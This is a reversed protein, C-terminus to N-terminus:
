QYQSYINSQTAQWRTFVTLTSGRLCNASESLVYGTAQRPSRKYHITKAPKATMEGVQWLRADDLACSPATSRGRAAAINEVAEIGPRPVAPKKKLLWDLNRRAHHSRHARGHAFSPVRPWDAGSAVPLQFKLLSPL